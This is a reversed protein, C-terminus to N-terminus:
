RRAYAIAEIEVEAGKPLARVEVTSRAPPDAKFVGAYVENMEAFRKMDTLFVTTKVVDSFGLGAEQLVAGLNTLARETQERVGGAALVGTGPDLAIQGSCYLAEGIRIAQSYPGVAAPAGASRVVKKDSM